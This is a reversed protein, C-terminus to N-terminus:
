LKPIDLGETALGYTAFLVDRQAAAELDKSKMGGVYLSGPAATSAQRQGWLELLQQCHARRDSLVLVCRGEAAAREIADVLLSNRASDQVM